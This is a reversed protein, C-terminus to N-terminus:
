TTPSTNANTSKGPLNEKIKETKTKINKPTKEPLCQIDQYQHYNNNNHCDDDDDDDDGDNNDDDGDDNYQDYFSYM